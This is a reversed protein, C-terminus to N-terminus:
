RDAKLPTPSETPTKETIGCNGIKFLAYVATHNSKKMTSGHDFRDYKLCCMKDESNYSKYLVRNCWSPLIYYPDEEWCNIYNDGCERGKKMVCVPPFMPGSDDIGEDFKYINEKRAQNRLEDYEYYTKILSADSSRPIMKAILDAGINMQNVRYNLDGMLIVHDPRWKNNLIIERIIGNYCMNAYSLSDQRIMPDGLKEIDRGERDTTVGSHNGISTRSLKISDKDFSIYTNIITIVKDNNLTLTVSMAGAGDASYSCNYNKNSNVKNVLKQKAYVSLRLSRSIDGKGIVSGKIVVGKKTDRHVKTYGMKIMRPPLLTSHFYTGTSPDNEFGICVIDPDNESLISKVAPLFDAFDCDQKLLGKVGKRSQEKKHPSNTECIRIGDSNWCFSLIKVGSM